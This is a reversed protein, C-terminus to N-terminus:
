HRTRPLVVVTGSLEFFLAPLSKSVTFTIEICCSGDGTSCPEANRTVVEERFVSLTVGFRRM